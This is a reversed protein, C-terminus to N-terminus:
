FLSTKSTVESFMAVIQEEFSKKKLASQKQSFANVKSKRKQTIMSEVYKSSSESSLLFWWACVLSELVVTM